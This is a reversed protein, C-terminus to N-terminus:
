MIGPHLPQHALKAPQCWFFYCCFLGIGAPILLGIASSHIGLHTFLTWISDINMASEANLPMVPITSNLLLQYIKHVPISPITTLHELQMDSSNSGLHQWIYFDQASINIMHLNAMNLSINVDLTPTEYRPPLYFNSSTASCAMPLKLIHIPKWIPITEMPKGPCILTMTNLPATVPTTLIWVDPAIQTPLKTASAKCIQLSCKSAIDVKSKVYLAAICSPPNALPQFPTTISSFQGNTDQCAQFQTTSLEVAMTADKTVGFYKTDVNYHASYNGQPIDLTLIQHITIQRSRDQIPIDILLLFQKNEILVHTHLYRYFHLTDEPSIPLHLTPPVTDAIHQLMRQLDIVPLVHPSLTGSTAADIYDMTHTSVSQIYNLSDHLNAFVSRIHLIMQHFNISTALSTTLNYLNNIDHSTTRIADTLTNIGHRIVQTAYRTINLISMIHVPTNHQSAQTTILQNIRTKISHIDKTTATGTLWTLADGLFPLISRRHHIHTQPQNSQLLKIASLIATEGSNYIDKINSLELQLTSLLQTQASPHQDLSQLLQQTRDFQRNFLKWYCELNGLSIHATIIWSHRTPYAQLVPQFIVLEELEMKSSNM